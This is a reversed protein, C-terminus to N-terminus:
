SQAEGMLYVEEEKIRSGGVLSWMNGHMQGILLEEKVSGGRIGRFGHYTCIKRTWINQMGANTEALM